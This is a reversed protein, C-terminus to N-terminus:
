CGSTTGWIPSRRRPIAFVKTAYEDRAGELEDVSLEERDCGGLALVAGVAAAMSLARWPLRRARGYM